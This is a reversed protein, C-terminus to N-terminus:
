NPNNFHTGNFYNILANPDLAFKFILDEFDKEIYALAKGDAIRAENASFMSMATILASTSQAIVYATQQESTM